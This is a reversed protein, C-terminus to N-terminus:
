IISLKIKPWSVAPLNGKQKFATYDRKNYVQSVQLDTRRADMGLM